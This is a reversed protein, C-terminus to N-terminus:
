LFHSKIRRYHEVGAGKKESEGDCRAVDLWAGGYDVRGSALVMGAFAM